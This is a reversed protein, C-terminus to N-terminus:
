PQFSDREDSKYAKDNEKLYVQLDNFYGTERLKMLQQRAYEETDYEKAAALHNAFELKKSETDLEAVWENKLRDGIIFVKSM